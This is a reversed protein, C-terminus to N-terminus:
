EALVLLSYGGLVRVTLDPLAAFSLVRPLRAMRQVLLNGLEICRPTYFHDVIKYGVDTLTRLATEKSSTTSTHMTIAGCSSVTRASFLRLLFLGCSSATATEDTGAGYRLRRRLRKETGSGAAEDHDPDTEGQLTIGRCALVPQEKSLQWGSLYRKRFRRESTSESERRQRASVSSYDDIYEKNESLM